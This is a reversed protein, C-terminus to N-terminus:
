ARTKRRAPKPTGNKESRIRNLLASAPEDNPDQPVLEGRFAKALLSQTLKGVHAQAKAFRAELQDALTFLLEVRRVIEQESLPPLPFAKTKMAGINFHPQAIGTENSNLRAQGSPSCVYHAGYEACLGSLPQTIVLDSCNAKDLGRLFVCFDGTNAGSRVVLIEGGFLKSKSLSSHFTEPIRVLGIESFRLPRVNQSRLFTIGALTYRDKMPGFHGVTIEWTCHDFNTWYWSSPLEPL